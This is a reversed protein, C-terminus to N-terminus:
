RRLFRDFAALLTKPLRTLITEQGHIRDRDFLGAYSVQDSSGVSIAFVWRPGGDWDLAISGTRSAVLEPKPIGHGSLLRLLALAKLAAEVPIRRAGEGDWNDVAAERLVLALEPSDEGLFLPYSM